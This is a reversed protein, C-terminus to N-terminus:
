NVPQEIMFMNCVVHHCQQYGAMFGDFFAKEIATPLLGPKTPSFRFEIAPKHTAPDVFKHVTVDISKDFRKLFAAQVSAVAGQAVAVMPNTTEPLNAMKTNM